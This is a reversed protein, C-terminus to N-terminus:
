GSPRIVDELVSAVGLGIARVHLSLQTLPGHYENESPSRRGPRQGEHLSCGGDDKRIAVIAAACYSHAM